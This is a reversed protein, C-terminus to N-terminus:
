LHGDFIDTLGSKRRGHSSIDNWANAAEHNSVRSAPCVVHYECSRTDITAGERMCSHPQAGEAIM